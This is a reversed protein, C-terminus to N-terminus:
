DDLISKINNDRIMVKTLIVLNDLLKIIRDDHFIITYDNEKNIYLLISLPTNLELAMENFIINSDDDDYKIIYRNKKNFKNIFIAEIQNIAEIEGYYDFIFQLSNVIQQQGTFYNFKM